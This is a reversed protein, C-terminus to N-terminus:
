RSKRWREYLASSRLRRPLTSVKLQFRRDSDGHYVGIRPWALPRPAPLGAPLTAARSYGCERALEVVREDHDGYPYALSECPRGLRESAVERSRVLEDRLREDDLETLRPHTHTHSGVEWGEELLSGLEDWSMGELEDEHPGGLWHDIGPWAMPGPLGVLATPVFVTAVYGLASLIPQALELVSQYGDDFTVAVRRGQAPREVIEGFTVGRYGRDHLRRLQREFAAPTVSLDAPWAESLAHYCLVIDDSM